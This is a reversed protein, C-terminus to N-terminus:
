SRVVGATTVKDAENENASKCSRRGLRRPTYHARAALVMRPGKNGCPDGGTVVSM